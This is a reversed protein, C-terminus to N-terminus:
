YTDYDTIDKTYAPDNVIYWGYPGSEFRRMLRVRVSDSINGSEYEFRILIKDNKIDNQIEPDLTEIWDYMNKLNTWSLKLKIM